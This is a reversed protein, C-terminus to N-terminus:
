LIVSLLLVAAPLFIFAGVTYGLALLRNKVALWGIGEACRLPAQRLAPVVMILAAAFVNFVVHILAAQLALVGLETNGAGVMAVGVLLATSTTGINAGVVFPYIQRLTFGGSGVLPVALSTTASSSQVAGTILAGSLVGTFANHSIAYDMVRKTKGVLLTGLTRSITKISFMLVVLALALIIVGNVVGAATNTEAVVIIELLNDALASFVTSIMGTIDVLFTSAEEAGGNTQAQQFASTLFSSTRELVSFMMELPLFIAVALVNFFDHVSAASFSRRFIERDGKQTPVVSLAVLTSTVTTGINAGLLIPIAVPIPMGSAVLGVTISTTTSSSQTLVTSLVGISLAIFVNDVYSFLTAASDGAALAFGSSVLNVATILLYVALSVSLWKVALGMKSMEANTSHPQPQSPIRHPAGVVTTLPNHDHAITTM